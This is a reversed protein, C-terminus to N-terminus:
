NRKLQKQLLYGIFAFLFGSLLFTIIVIGALDEDPNM